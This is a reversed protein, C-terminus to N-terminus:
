NGESFIPDGPQRLTERFRAALAPPFDFSYTVREFLCRAQCQEINLRVTLLEIRCIKPLFLVVVQNALGNKVTQTLEETTGLAWRILSQQNQSVSADPLCRQQDHDLESM